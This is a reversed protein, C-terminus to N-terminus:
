EMPPCDRKRVDYVTSRTAGTLEAVRAPTAGEALLKCIEADREAVRERRRRGSERGAVVPDGRNATENM